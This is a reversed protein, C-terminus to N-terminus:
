MLGEGRPRLRRGVRFGTRMVLRRQRAFNSSSERRVRFGSYIRSHARGLGARAILDVALQLRGAPDQLVAVLQVARGAAADRHALERQAGALGVIEQEDVAGGKRAFQHRLVRVVLRRAHQELADTGLARGVGLLAPLHDHVVSWIVAHDVLRYGRRLVNGIDAVNRWPVQPHEAKRKAPIHRSAEPVIEICRETGRRVLPDALYGEYSMGATFRMVEDIADRIDELRSLLDAYAM